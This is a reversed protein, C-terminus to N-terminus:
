VATNLEALTRSLKKSCSVTLITQCITVGLQTDLHDVERVKSQFIKERKFSLSHHAIERTKQNM